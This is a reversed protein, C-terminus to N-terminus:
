YDVEMDMDIYVPTTVDGIIESENTIKNIGKPLRGNIIVDGYIRKFTARVTDITSVISSVKDSTVYGNITTIHDLYEDGVIDFVYDAYSTEINRIDWRNCENESTTRNYTLDIVHQVGETVINSIDVIEADSVIFTGYNNSTMGAAILESTTKINTFEDNYANCNKCYM